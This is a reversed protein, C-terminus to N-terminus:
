DLLLPLLEALPLPAPAAASVAPVDACLRATHQRLSPSSAPHALLLSALAQRAPLPLSHPGRLEVLGVLSELALATDNVEMAGQLAARLHHRAREPQREALALRGLTNLCESAARRAHLEQCIELSEQTLTRAAAPEGRQLCLRGLGHLAAAIREPHGLRRGLALCEEYGRQAAPAEGRLEQLRALHELLVAKEYPQGLEETLRLAEQYLAAARPLEGLLVLVDGQRGLCAAVRRTDGLERLLELSQELLHLAEAPAGRQPAVAALHVLAVALTRRSGQVRGLEAMGRFCWQASALAGQQLALRGATELAQALEEPAGQERLLALGEEVLGLAAPLPAIELAFRGQWALLRGLLRRTAPEPAAAQARRVVGVAERLMAEAEQFRGRVEHARCLGELAQGLLELPGHHVVWQLAARVNELEADIRALVQAQRPGELEERGGVWAVYFRAHRERVQREEEPLAQLAEACFQWVVGQPEYRRASNRRVLCKDALSALVGLSASAIASAAELTCGGRFVSLRRLVEQEQPCLLKWSHTFISRLSRQREPTDRSPALFDLSGEVQACIEAPSFHRVWAAALEIALPMGGLLRCLREVSPTSEPGLAFDPQVRRATQEFLVLADSPSAAREGPGPCELGELALEWEGLLRLRERSTVLCQLQPARALLETLLPAASLLHEFGDLVLLLRRTRLHQHLRTELPVSGAPPLGLADAIAAPLAQAAPVPALPIFCVSGPEAAARQHAYELALRTKGMGGTGLVTLLRCAPQALHQALRALERARGIFPTPPAPLGLPPSPASEELPAALPAAPPATPTPPPPERGQKISELLRTTEPSPPVGLERMLAAACREYHRLAEARQRTWACLLMLRQCAQENLSDLLAVHQALSLAQTFAGQAIHGSLLAECAERFRRRLLERQLTQWEEFESCECLALGQLFDGRYLAVAEALEGLLEPPLPAAGGQSAPRTLRLFRASDVSVGGEALRVGTRDAALWGPGLAQNLRWLTNRLAGHARETDFDPWLMAALTDRDHREGTAALYALLATAKARTLAVTAGDREIAPTGLLLLNLSAM